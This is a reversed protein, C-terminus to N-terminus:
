KLNQMAWQMFAQQEERSMAHFVTKLESAKPSSILVSEQPAPSKQANYDAVERQYDRFGQLGGKNLQVLTFAVAKGDADTLKIKPQSEFQKADDITRFKDYQLMLSQELHAAFELLLPQSDFKRRKGDEFVIQGITVAIQNHGNKLQILNGNHMQEVTVGEGNVVQPTMEKQLTLSAAFLSGSFLALVSAILIKKM